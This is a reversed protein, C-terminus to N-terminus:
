PSIAGEAYVHRYQTLEPIAGLSPFKAQQVCPPAPQQGPNGEQGYTFDLNLKYAEPTLLGPVPGVIQPDTGGTCQRTEYSQLGKALQDSARPLAYPSTRNSPLRNPFEALTEPNVPQTTRLYHVFGPANPPADAAQTAATANAFFATLEPVFFTLGELPANLSRLFPDLQGLLPELDRLTQSAAPFGKVSADITPGLGAFLSKLQPALKQVAIFTPSMQLAAPRLQTVLPDTNIAFAELQKLTLTSEKEFTPLAVFTAALEANRKATTGFVINTNRILSALQGQRAGLAGFVVGTNKVLRQVAAQQSNLVKLLTTTDESFPALTGFADNIDQGRENVALYQQQMWSQFAARTKADFARFIEDLEVTPAVRSTQIAGGEPIKPNTETGPTLEVYTEGLLTKQRLIARVDNPLPAYREDIEMTVKSRGGSDLKITKVKGVPVGSIRVDAEQALQGAENFSATVRYGKPQFPIPGGFALWLYLLLGFCSLAFAVMVFLRGLTPAQKQM